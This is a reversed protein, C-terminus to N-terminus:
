WVGDRSHSLLSSSYNGFTRSDAVAGTALPQTVPSSLPGRTYWQIPSIWTSLKQNYYDRCEPTDDAGTAAFTPAGSSVMPLITIYNNWRGETALGDMFGQALDKEKNARITGVFDWTITQNVTGVPKNNMEGFKEYKITGMSTSPWALSRSDDNLVNANRVDVQLQLPFDPTFTLACGSINKVNVQITTAYGNGIGLPQYINLELKAPAGNCYFTSAMEQAAREFAADIKALCPSVPTESAAYAPVVATAAVAPAAWAAGKALSRRSINQSM